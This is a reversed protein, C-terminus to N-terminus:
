RREGFLQESLSQPLVQPLEGSEPHDVDFVRPVPQLRGHGVADRPVPSTPRPAAPAAIRGRVTPLPV